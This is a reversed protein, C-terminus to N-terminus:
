AKKAPLLHLEVFHAEVIVAFADALAACDESAIERDFADSGDANRVDLRTSREGRSVAVTWGAGDDSLPVRGDFARRLEDTRPCTGQVELRVVPQAWAPTVLAVVVGLIWRGM